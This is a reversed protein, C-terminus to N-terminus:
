ITVPRHLQEWTLIREERLKNIANELKEKDRALEGNRALKQFERVLEKAIKKADKMTGMGHHNYLM